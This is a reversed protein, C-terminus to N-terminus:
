KIGLGALVTDTPLSRSKDIAELLKAASRQGMKELAAVDQAQLRYLDAISRM